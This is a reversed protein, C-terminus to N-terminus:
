QEKEVLEIHYLTPWLKGTVFLRDGASDYAIGNPCDENIFRVSTNGYLPVIETWGVQKKEDPTLIGSLDIWGSVQGTEPSIIAIAYSPWVNAYVEGRVYELENLNKVPVGHDTVTVNRVPEFTMPDLFYITSSGDSMILRTGDFTIGWGKTSYPFTGLPTLTSAEYLIGFGSTETEQAIRDGYVTAGEGFWADQLRLAKIVGGTTLNVLRITSNGQLGTSEVLMGEYYALGETFAFRDHPYTALVRYSYVHPAQVPVGSDQSPPDLHGPHLLVTIVLLFLLLIM